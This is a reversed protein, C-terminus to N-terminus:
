FTVWKLASNSLETKTAYTTAINNGDADNTANTANAVASTVKDGSISGVALTTANTTGAVVITGDAAGVTVSQSGTGSGGATLTITATGESVSSGIDYTTNTDPTTVTVESSGDYNQGNIVLKNTVKGAEDVKTINVDGSLAQGNVTTTKDVKTGLETKTAFDSTNVSGFQGALEYSTGTWFYEIFANDTEADPNVVLYFVGAEGTSHAAKLASLSEYGTGGNSDVAFDTINGIANDVYSKVAATTPISSGTSVDTDASQTTGSLQLDDGLSVGTVITTAGGTVKGGPTVYGVTVGTATDPTKTVSSVVTGAAAPTIVVEADPPADPLTFTYTEGATVHGEKDTTVSPVKFTDGFKLTAGSTPGLVKAEFSPHTYFNSVQVPKQPTGGVEDPSMYLVKNTSDYYLSRPPQYASPAGEGSLVPRTYETDGVFMRQTDTCFYIMNTDGSFVQGQFLADYNAQVGYGFKLLQNQNPM